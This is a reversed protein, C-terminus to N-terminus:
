SASQGSVTITELNVEKKYSDRINKWKKMLDKVAKNKEEPGLDAWHAVVEQGIEMWLKAKLERNAYEKSKVEYLTPREQVEIIFRETDFM